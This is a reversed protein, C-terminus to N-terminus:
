PCIVTEDLATCLMLMLKFKNEKASVKMSGHYKEVAAQISKMGIGHLYRDEKSSLFVNDKQLLQGDFENSVVILLQQEQKLAKLQMFASKGNAIRKVCAERANELANGLIVTIDSLDIQDFSGPEVAFQVRIGSDVAKKWEDYLIADLFHNGTQFEGNVEKINKFLEEIYQETEMSDELLLMTNIHKKLDHYLRHVNQQNKEIQTYNAMMKENRMDMLLFDKEKTRYSFYGDIVYYSVFYFVIMIFALIGLFLMGFGFGDGQHYSFEVMLVLCLISAVAQILLIGAEKITYKEKERSLLKVCLVILIFDVLKSFALCQVLFFPEQMIVSIDTGKYFLLLLGGVLGEGAIIILFFLGNLLISTVVSSKYIWAALFVGIIFMCCLKLLPSIDSMDAAFSIITFFAMLLWKKIGAFHKHLRECFFWYYLYVESFNILMYLINWQIGNM